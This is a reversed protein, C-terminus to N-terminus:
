SFNQILLVVIFSEVHGHIILKVRLHRNSLISVNNLQIPQLLLTSLLGTGEGSSNCVSKINNLAEDCMRLSLCTKFSKMVHTLM